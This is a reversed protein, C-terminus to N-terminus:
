GQASRLLLASGGGEGCVLAIQPNRVQRCVDRNYTHPGHCLDDIVGEPRLQQVAELVHNLGNIHAESLLGGHTNVPLEGDLGNHGATVWRGAEGKPALGFDEIHLLCMGTFPDYLEALSVDNPTIGAGGYLLPAVNVGNTEWLDLTPCEGALGSMIYVPSHRLDRAREASTVVLAVAGDSQQCCDLLRYPYSIWRSAQHDEVTMPKRMMAKENLSAHQRQTVALHAFDLTTTGYRAMHAVVPLALSTAAMHMGFPTRFQDTGSASPGHANRGESYTNRAKFVLVNKCLGAYVVAAASMVAACMWHGGEDAFLEYHCDLEMAQALERASISDAAKHFWSVVGDIDRPKLGADAIARLSAEVALTTTSAGSNRTFATWGIGVIATKDKIPQEAV